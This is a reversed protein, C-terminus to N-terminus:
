DALLSAEPGRANRRGYVVIRTTIGVGPATAQLKIYAPLPEATNLTGAQTESCGPGWGGGVNSAAATLAGSKFGLVAGPTHGSSYIISSATIGGSFHFRFGVYDYDRVDLVGTDFDTNAVGTGDFLLDVKSPMAM